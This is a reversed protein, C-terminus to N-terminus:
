LPMMIPHLYVLGAIDTSNAQLDALLKSIRGLMERDSVHTDNFGPTDILIINTEPVVFLKPEATGPRFTLGARFPFPIVSM